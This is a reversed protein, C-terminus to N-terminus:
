AKYITVWQFDVNKEVKKVCLKNDILGIHIMYGNRHNWYILRAAGIAGDALYHIEGFYDNAPNALRHDYYEYHLTLPIKTARGAPTTPNYEYYTRGIEYAFQTADIQLNGKIKMGSLKLAFRAIENIFDIEDHIIAKDSSKISNNGRKMSKSLKRKVFGQVPINEQSLGERLPTPHRAEIVEYHMEIADNGKRTPKDDFLYGQETLFQKEKMFDIGFIYEFYAPVKKNTYKKLWYLMYVHGPLLGDDFRTMMSKPIVCQNKFMLAKELWEPDRNESIYPIEPYDSYFKNIIENRVSQARHRKLYSLIDMIGM